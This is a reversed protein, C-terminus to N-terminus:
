FPHGAIWFCLITLGIIFVLLISLLIIAKVSSIKPNSNERINTEITCNKDCTLNLEKDITFNILDEYSLVNYKVVFVDNNVVLNASDSNSDAIGLSYLFKYFLLFGKRMNQLEDFHIEVENGSEIKIKKKYIKKGNCLLYFRFPINSNNNLKVRM